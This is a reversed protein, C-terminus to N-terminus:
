QLGNLAVRWVNQQRINSLWISGFAFRISDGGPGFWQRVVKNIAPDIKTIPIQMMTIWLHGAGFSM